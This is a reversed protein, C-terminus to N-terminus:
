ALNSAHVANLPSLDVARRELEIAEHTRGLAALLIARVNLVNENAPDIAMARDLDQSAGEWDLDQLM